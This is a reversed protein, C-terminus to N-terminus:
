LVSHMKVCTSFFLCGGFPHTRCHATVMRYSVSTAGLVNFAELVPERSHLRQHAKRTDKRFVVVATRIESRQLPTVFRSCPSRRRGSRTRVISLRRSYRCLLRRASGWRFWRQRTWCATCDRRRRLLLRRSPYLFFVSEGFHHAREYGVVTALRSVNTPRHTDQTTCVLGGLSM